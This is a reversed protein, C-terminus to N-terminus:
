SGVQRVHDMVWMQPDVVHLDFCSALAVEVDLHFVSSPDFTQLVLKLCRVSHLLLVQSHEDQSHGEEVVKAVLAM